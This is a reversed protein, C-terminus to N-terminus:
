IGYRTRNPNWFRRTFLLLIGFLELRGALMIFSLVLKSFWSFGDYNGLPGVENFGPGMNGLCSMVASITTLFDKNELAIIITGIFILGMYLFIFAAISSVLDSRLPGDDNKISVVAQPHLRRSLNRKILKLAIVVRFTKIGGSTSASCGGILMALLIIIKAFSPWMDYNASAFGTSSIISVFNFTGHTLASGINSYIDNIFINVTVLLAATGTIVIFWRLETDRLFERWHSSFLYYYLTFNISGFLMFIIIVWYTYYDGLETLGSNFISFGGTSVTGMGHTLSQFFNMEGAWLLLICCISLVLYYLFLRKATDTHKALIKDTMSKSAEAKAIVHGSSGFMPLVAIVLIIIGLGGLWHTFSRWFLLGKPLAEVDAIVTAGTTTLGSAAEFIADIYHLGGAFCLPLASCLISIVWVMGVTLLGDRTNLDNDKVKTKLFVILGTLFISTGIIGFVIATNFEKYILSVIVPFIMVGGILIIVLSGIKFIVRLNLGM